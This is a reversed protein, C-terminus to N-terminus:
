RRLWWILAGILVLITIGFIILGSYSSQVQQVGATNQQALFPIM